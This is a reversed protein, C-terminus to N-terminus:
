GISSNSNLKFYPGLHMTAETRPFHNFSCVLASVGIICTILRDLYEARQRPNILHRRILATLKALGTENRDIAGEMQLCTAHAIQSPVPTRQKSAFTVRFSLIHLRARM